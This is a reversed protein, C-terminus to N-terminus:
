FKLFFNLIKGMKNLDMSFNFNLVVPESGPRFNRVLFEIELCESSVEVCDLVITRNRPLNALTTDEQDFSSRYTVPQEEVINQTYQNFSKQQEVENIESLSNRRRRRHTSQGLTNYDQNTRDVNMEYDYGMKSSDFDGPNNQSVAIDRLNNIDPTQYWDGHSKISYDLVKNIYFGMVSLDSSNVIPVFYNPYTTYVIPVFVKISLEKVTSPGNNYIKYKYQLNEVRLGDELSLQTASSM